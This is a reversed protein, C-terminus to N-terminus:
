LIRKLDCICFFSYQIRHFYNESFTIDIWIINCLMGRRREQTKRRDRDSTQNLLPTRIHFPQIPVGLWNWQWDFSYEVVILFHANVRFQLYKINSHIHISYRVICLINYYVNGKFLKPVSWPKEKLNYKNTQYLIRKETTNEANECRQLPKATYLIIYTHSLARLRIFWKAWLGRLSPSTVSFCFIFIFRLHFIFVSGYLYLFVTRYRINIL